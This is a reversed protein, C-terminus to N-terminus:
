GRLLNRALFLLNAPREALRRMFFPYWHTGYSTAVMVTYGQALLDRQLQPRVGYLMQFEFRDRSIQHQEVFAIAHQIMRPDHTAIATYGGEVLARDMLRLYNEDVDAKDPFAVEKSELYAGKVLRLNPKLPLLSELDGATRRLCSQLVAGVNDFGRARLDRYTALTAEVHTSDEMDIRMTMGHEASLELLQVMNSQALEPSLDLGMLTLKIAVNANLHEVAIRDILERYEAVASDAEAASTVAEGLCTANCKFGKQNLQRVVAIAQELTEGSVFRSAGLRMGYRRMFAETARNQAGALIATRAIGNM